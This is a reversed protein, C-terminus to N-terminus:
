TGDVFGIVGGFMVGVDVMFFVDILHKRKLKNRARSNRCPHTTGRPVVHLSSGSVHLTSIIRCPWGM